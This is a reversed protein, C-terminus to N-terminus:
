YYKFGQFVKIPIQPDPKASSPALLNRDRMSRKQDQSKVFSTFINNKTPIGCSFYIKM